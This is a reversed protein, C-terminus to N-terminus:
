CGGGMSYRQRVPSAPTPAFQEKKSDTRAVALSPYRAESRAGVGKAARLPPSPYMNPKAM